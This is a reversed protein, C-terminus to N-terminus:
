VREVVHSQRLSFAPLDLRGMGLFTGEEFRAPATVSPSYAAKLRNAQRGM